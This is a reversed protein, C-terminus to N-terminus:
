QSIHLRFERRCQQVAVRGAEVAIHAYSFAL